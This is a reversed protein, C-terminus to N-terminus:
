KVQKAFLEGAWENLIHRILGAMTQGQRDAEKKIVEYLAPPVDFNFVKAETKEEIKEETKEEV